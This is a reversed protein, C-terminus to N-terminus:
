TITACCRTTHLPAPHLTHHLPTCRTSVHRFLFFFLVCLRFSQGQLVFERLAPSSSGTCNTEDVECQAHLIDLWADIYRPVANRKTLAVLISSMTAERMRHRKPAGPNVLFFLLRCLTSSLILMANQTIKKKM